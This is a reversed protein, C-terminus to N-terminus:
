IFLWFIDGWRQERLRSIVSQHFFELAHSSIEYRFWVSEFNKATGANHVHCDGGPLWITMGDPSAHGRRCKRMQVNRSSFDLASERAPAAADGHIRIWAKIIVITLVLDVRSGGEKVMEFLALFRFVEPLRGFVAGSHRFFVLERTEPPIAYGSSRARKLCGRSTSVARPM